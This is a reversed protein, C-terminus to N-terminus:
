VPFQRQLTNEFQRQLTSEFQRELTSAFQRQVTSEFQRRVAKSSVGCRAPFQRELTSPAERQL